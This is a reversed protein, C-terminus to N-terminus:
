KRANVYQKAYLQAYTGNIKVLAQHDGCEVVKGGEIAYILDAKLLSSIRHTIIMITRNKMLKGLADHIQQESESDLANTAEDLLLIPANKLIARAIAIRQRQGGSLKIGYEGVRTNYGKPLSSIFTDAAFEAAAYLEKDTAEPRAFRINEAVTDDFLIIEQSVLAISDRLSNITLARVDSGGVTVSGSEVDFFRPILNIITSKGAGSPGVLATIKGAPALLNIGALAETGDSYSFRVDKLTIDAPARVMAKANPAETTVSRHDFLVFLREAAALGEQLTTSVKGLGRLPQYIMLMATIFSFFAGPTTTGEIVQYGGYIIIAGIALGGCGDVIPQVAARVLSQRYTIQYIKNSLTYIRKTESKEMLYAKIVRIGQFSQSLLTTLNGMCVQATISIQRMNEGLKQIPFVTIPTILLAILSLRWDQYLMVGFLLVVSLGDRILGVIATSATQRLAQVNVTFHSVLEGTSHNQFFLMNQDLMHTFLRVQVDAVIRGGVRALFAEQFFSASAKLAFTIMVASGVLWLMSHNREVFVKDVIPDMLWATLATTLAVMAMAIAAYVLWKIYARVFTTWLRFLLLETYTHKLLIKIKEYNTVIM